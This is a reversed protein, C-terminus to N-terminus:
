SRTPSEQPLEELFRDLGDEWNPLALGFTARLKDTALRSNAIRKAPTPYEASSIPLIREPTAKIPHGKAAALGVLLRAYAHWSTEGGAVLHYTGTYREPTQSQQASWLAQATVDAILEASTPAGIQDAVVKLEDRAKAANLITRPFNKGRPAYVWSTRFILYRGGVARVADEGQLKTAGYVSVPATADTEVYAGIKHGDFVYDTSYHVLWAKTRKAEGALLGVAESNIRAALQPESEAKDVATYAAANVIIDAESARVLDRLRDLDSLDAEARGCAKVDGLPALARRLEWGVQGNAGLLLIKM